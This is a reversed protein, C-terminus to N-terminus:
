RGPGAEAGPYQKSHDRGYETARKNDEQNDIMVRLAICHLLGLRAQLLQGPLHAVGYIAANMLTKNIHAQQRRGLGAHVRALRVGQTTEELIQFPTLGVIGPHALYVRSALYQDGGAAQKLAHIHALAGPELVCLLAAKGAVIVGGQQQFLFQRLLGFGPAEDIDCHRQTIPIAPQTAHNARM